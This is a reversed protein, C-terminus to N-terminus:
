IYIYIYNVQVYLLENWYICNFIFWIIAIILYILCMWGYFPLYGYVDGPLHGYPNMWISQGNFKFDGSNDQCSAMAFVHIATTKVLMKQKIKKIKENQNFKIHYIWSGKVNKSIILTNLEEQKCKNEEILEENCCLHLENDYHLGIDNINTDPIVILQVEGIDESKERTVILDFLVYSDGNGPSEKSPADKPAFMAVGSFTQYSYPKVGSTFDHKVILSNCLNIIYILLCVLLSM